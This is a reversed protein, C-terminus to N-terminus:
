TDMREELDTDAGFIDRLKALGRSVKKDVTNEKLGLARAINKTSEGFYYKRIFIQNDPEGLSKIGNILLMKTELREGHEYVNERSDENLELNNYNEMSVVNETGKGCRRYFDIARRQALVAMFSKLSGKKLDISERKEYAEYFVTSVCEEVDEKSCTNALKNRVITYVLGAYTDMLKELGREPKKILLALLKEEM